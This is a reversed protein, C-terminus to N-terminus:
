YFINQKDGINVSEPWNVKDAWQGTNHMRCLWFVWIMTGLAVGSRFSFGSVLGHRAQFYNTILGVLLTILGVITWLFLISRDSKQFIASHLSTISYITYSLQIIVKGTFGQWFRHLYLFFYLVEAAPLILLHCIVLFPPYLNNIRNEFYPIDIELRIGNLFGQTSTNTGDDTMANSKFGANPQALLQRKPGCKSALFLPM